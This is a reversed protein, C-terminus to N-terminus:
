NAKRLKKLVEETLARYNHSGSASPAFAIIPQGELQAKNLDTNVTIQTKFIPGKFYDRLSKEIVDNMTVNRLDVRTFVVGLIRLQPNLRETITELTELLDTVGEFALVSMECPVICYDSAVLANLTLAGLNPPCDFLIFDYHTGALALANKVIFERGIKTSLAGETNYLDKDGPTIALNEWETQIVADLIDGRKKTLIESMPIYELGDPILAGLSKEVHGQPDLDVVLVRKECDRALIAGLNIATTTKGVGGKQSCLAIITADKGGRDGQNPPDSLTTDTVLSKLRDTLAM